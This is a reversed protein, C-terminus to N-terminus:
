VNLKAELYEKVLLLLQIRKKKRTPASMWAGIISPFSPTGGNGWYGSAFYESAWYSDSFYGDAM